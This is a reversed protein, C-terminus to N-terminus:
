LCLKYIIAIDEPNHYYNPRRGHEQFLFKQYLRRAAPNSERVELWIASAREDRALKLLDSLLQSALGRRVASSAVAINEIEWESGVARVVVFGLFSDADEAVLARRMGGVRFVEEYKEAAWHAALPASQEIALIAPIDTPQAQRINM